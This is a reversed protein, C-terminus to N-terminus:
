IVGSTRLKEVEADSKGLITRLIRETDAGLLPPASQVVAPTRSFQYPIGPVRINGVQPHEMEIVM